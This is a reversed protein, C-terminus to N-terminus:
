RWPPAKHSQLYEIWAYIGVREVYGTVARVGDGYVPDKNTIQQELFYRAHGDRRGKLALYAAYECSGECLTKDVDIPAHTFLWVHMLEHALVGLLFARPMGTLAYVRIKQEKILGFLATRGKLESFGWAEPGEATHLRLMEYRDILDLKFEHEINVGYARLAIRATDLLYAAVDAKTVAASLCTGCVERGDHYRIGKGTLKEAKLRNCYECLAYEGVHVSHVTDGWSNYVYPGNIASGCISCYHAYAKNYCSDHLNKGEFIAYPGSIPGKCVACFITYHKYFCSDHLNKGEFITYKGVLPQKCQDCLLPGAQVAAALYLFAFLLLRRVIIM